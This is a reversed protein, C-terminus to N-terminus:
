SCTFCKVIENGKFKYLKDSFVQQIFKEISHSFNDIKGDKDFFKIKGNSIIVKMESFFKKGNIYITKDRIDFTIVKKIFKTGTYNLGSITTQKEKPM